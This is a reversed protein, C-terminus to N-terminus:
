AGRVRVLMLSLREAKDIDGAGLALSIDKILQKILKHSEISTSM